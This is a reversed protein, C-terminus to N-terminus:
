GNDKSGDNKEKTENDNNSNDVKKEGQKNKSSWNPFNVVCFILYGFGYTMLMYSITDKAPVIDHSALLFLVAFILLVVAFIIGAIKLKKSDSL